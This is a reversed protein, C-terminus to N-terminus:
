RAVELGDIGAPKGVVAEAGVDGPFLLEEGHLLNEPFERGNGACVADMEVHLGVVLDGGEFDEPQDFVNTSVDDADHEVGGVHQLAALM